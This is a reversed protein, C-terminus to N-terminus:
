YLSKLFENFDRSLFYMNEMGDHEEDHARHYIEGSYNNDLGICIQNGSTDDPIPLFGIDIIEDFIDIKKELNDYMDGIGYFINVLSEGTEDSIIYKGPDPYRDNYNLLCFHDTLQQSILTITKNM